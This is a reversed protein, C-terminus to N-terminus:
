LPNALQELNDGCYIVRTDLLSSPHAAAEQVSAETRKVMPMADLMSATRVGRGPNETTSKAAPEKAMRRTHAPFNAGDIEM